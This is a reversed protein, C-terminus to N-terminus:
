EMVAFYLPSELKMALVEDEIAWLTACAAVAAVSFELAL